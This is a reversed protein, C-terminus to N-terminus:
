CILYIYYFYIWLLLCPLTTCIFVRRHFSPGWSHLFAQLYFSFSFSLQSQLQHLFLRMGINIFMNGPEGSSFFDNGKLQKITVRSVATSSFLIFIAWVSIGVYYVIWAASPAQHGFLCPYLGYKDISGQFSMGSIILSAYSLIWYSIFGILNGVIFIWIKVM